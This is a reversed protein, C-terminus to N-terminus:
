MTERLFVCIEQPFHGHQSLGLHDEPSQIHNQTLDTSTGHVIRQSTSKSAPDTVKELLVAEHVLARPGLVMAPAMKEIRKLLASRTKM